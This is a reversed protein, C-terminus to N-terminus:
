ERQKSVVNTKDVIKKGTKGLERLSKIWNLEPNRFIYPVSYITLFIIKIDEVVNSM